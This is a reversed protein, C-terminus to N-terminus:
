IATDLKTMLPDQIETRIYQNTQDAYQKSFNHFLDFKDDKAHM